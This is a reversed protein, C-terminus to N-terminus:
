TKLTKQKGWTECSRGSIRCWNIYPSYGMKRYPKMSLLHHLIEEMLLLVVQFHITPLRIVKRKPCFASKKPPSSNQIIYKPRFMQAIKPCKSSDKNPNREKLPSVELSFDYPAESGELNRLTGPKM